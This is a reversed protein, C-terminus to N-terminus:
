LRATQVGPSFRNGRDPASSPSMAMFTLNDLCTKSKSKPQKSTCSVACALESLGVLWDLSCDVVEAECCDGCCICCSTAGIAKYGCARADCTRAAEVYGVWTTSASRQM